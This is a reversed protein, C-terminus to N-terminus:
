GARCQTYLSQVQRPRTDNSLAAPRIASPVDTVQDLTLATKMVTSGTNEFDLSAGAFPLWTRAHCKLPYVHHMSVYGLHRLLSPTLCREM